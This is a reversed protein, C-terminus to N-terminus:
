LSIFSLFFSLFFMRFPQWIVWCIFIQAFAFLRHMIYFFNFFFQTSLILTARPSASSSLQFQPVFFIPRLTSTPTFFFVRNCIIKICKFVKLFYCEKAIKIIVQNLSKLFLNLKRGLIFFIWENKGGLM